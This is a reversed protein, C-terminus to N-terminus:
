HDSLKNKLILQHMEKAVLEAYDAFAATVIKNKEDVVIANENTGKINIKLIADKTKLEKEMDFPLLAGYNADTMFEKEAWTPFCTITKGTVFWNKSKTRISLLSSIGHGSAGIIGGSLAISATLRAINKNSYVDWFQGYGGPYFVACYEKAKIEKPSRSTYIKKIFLSDIIIKQLQSTTDFKYYLPIRGGKPSVIDVEYGSEVFYQFPFAIEILYTGNHKGNLSDINTAVFLIKKQQASIFFPILVFLLLPLYKKM